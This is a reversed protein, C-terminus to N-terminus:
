KTTGNLVMRFDAVKRNPYQGIREMVSLCESKGIEEAEQAILGEKRDPQEPM